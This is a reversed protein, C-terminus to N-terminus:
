LITRRQSFKLIHTDFILKYKTDIVIKGLPEAERSVEISFSICKCDDIYKQM